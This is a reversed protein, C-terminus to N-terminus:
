LGARDALLARHQASSGFLAESSKARRFYLHLDHEWTFAIGGHVQIASGACQTFTDAAQAKALPACIRLQDPDDATMSAFMVAARSADIEIMMDACAHKVAQFSGISRGFQKRSCAYEVAMDLCAEAGGLMEAALLVRATDVVRDIGDSTGATLPEARARALRLRSVPRTTDFSPLREVRVGPDDADVVHLVVVGDTVAPVVFMGAAHGHLVPAYEGSLLVRAVNYDAAHVTATATDTDAPGSVALAAPQDGALLGPLLRSQQEESGMRLIAEIAFVTAALPVPTLARGLEEFAIAAEVLTGGAGGRREAVHLGALGLETCLRRWLRQDHGDAASVARVQDPPAASRLFGRLSARFDDHETGYRFDM